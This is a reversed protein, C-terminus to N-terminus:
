KKKLNILHSIKLNPYKYIYFVSVTGFKVRGPPKNSQLVMKKRVSKTAVLHHNKGCVKKTNPIKKLIGLQM